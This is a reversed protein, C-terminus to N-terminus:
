VKNETDIKVYYHNDSLDTDLIDVAKLMEEPFEYTEFQMWDKKSGIIIGFAMSILVGNMLNIFRHYRPVIEESTYIADSAYGGDATPIMFGDEDLFTCFVGPKYDYMDIGYLYCFPEGVIIRRANQPYDMTELIRSDIITDIMETIIYAGIKSGLHKKNDLEIAFVGSSLLKEEQIYQIDTFHKAIGRENFMADYVGDCHFIPIDSPEIVGEMRLIARISDTLPLLQLATAMIPNGIQVPFYKSNNM